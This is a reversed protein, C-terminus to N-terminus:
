ASAVRGNEVNAVHLSKKKRGGGGERGGGGVGWKAHYYTLESPLSQVTIKREFAFGLMLDGMQNTVNWEPQQKKKSILIAISFGVVVIGFNPSSYGPSFATVLFPNEVFAFVL